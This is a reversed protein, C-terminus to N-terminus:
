RSGTRAKLALLVSTIAQDRSSKLTAPDQGGWHGSVDTIYRQTLSEDVQFSDPATYGAALEDTLLKVFAPYDAPTRAGLYFTHSPGIAAWRLAPGYTMADDLEGVSAVDESLLYLLEKWVAFQLRNGIYGPIENKLVIPKSGIQRYFNVAADIAEGAAGEGGVVEVLPILYPPNFPHGILIREGHVCDSRLSTALFGSSSSAVVVNAPLQGDLEALLAIKAPEDEVASEQVFQAGQLADNLKTTFRLKDLSASKALGLTELTPWVTTAMERLFTEAQPRPDYCVVELGARLFHCAWGSGMLGTGVCCVKSVEGALFAM